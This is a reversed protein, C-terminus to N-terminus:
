LFFFDDTHLTQLGIGELTLSDGNGLDVITDNGVQNARAALEALTSITTFSRLDVVDDSNAGPTFDAILDNGAGLTFVFTDNGTGGILRDTGGAGNIQDDGAGGDLQDDGAGGLLVDNGITGREIAYSDVQTGNNQVSHFAFSIKTATADVILAGHAGNYQAASGEVPTPVFGNIGSRGGLGTILYPIDFNDGDDNRLIREYIHDHGSLVATAGWDEFNWQLTTNSGHSDGSSYPSHHLYVVKWPAESSALATQLWQAQISTGSNGDVERSDSDVAFFHVPGEVFDYYRENGSTSVGAGPLTFYDLYAQLGGGDRYDHNGLSPFFRNVPSGAGFSGTYGGIYDSYYQGINNDIPNSGYSNDGTTVILDPDLGKVLNSVALEFANDDGYDGIAAFRLPVDGVRVNVLASGIAGEPDQV